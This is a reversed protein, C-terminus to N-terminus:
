VKRFSFESCKYAIERVIQRGPFDGLQTTNSRVSPPSILGVTTASNIAPGSM